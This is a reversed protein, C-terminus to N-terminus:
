HTYTIRCGYTRLNSTDARPNPGDNDFDNSDLSTYSTNDTGLRLRMYYANNDNDVIHNLGTEILQKIVISQGTTPPADNGPFIQIGFSRNLYAREYLNFDFKDINYTPDNDYYYCRMDTIISGDPLRVGQGVVKDGHNTPFAYQGELDYANWETEDTSEVPELESGTIFYYDTKATTATTSITTGNITIGTGATYTTDTDRDEVCKLEGNTAIAQLYENALCGNALNITQTKIAGVRSDNDNVAAKINDMNAKTLLGGTEYTDGISGASVPQSSLTLTIFTTFIVSYKM